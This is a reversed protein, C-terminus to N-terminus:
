KLYGGNVSIVEGTIFSAGDGALFVATEAVDCPEGIRMLPTEECIVAKDENSLSANMDTDILGPAIANVTIGSPGVEKALAKTFGILAAKTSSYCVECSSGVLGWMSTLNIIRGTKRKLMDPIVYKSYLFAGTLNVGLMNNWDELTIDTFLSFSSIAANNVLCDIRGYADVTKNVASIVDIEKSSDAMIALAGTENALTEAEERSSKYTFAVNYGNKSFARVTERGIGRSGGTILVTKM